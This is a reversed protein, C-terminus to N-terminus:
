SAHAYLCKCCSMCMVEFTCLSMFVCFCLFVFLAYLIADRKVTFFSVGQLSICFALCQPVLACSHMCVGLCLCVVTRLFVLVSLCM